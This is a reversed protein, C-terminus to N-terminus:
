AWPAPPRIVMSVVAPVIVESAAPVQPTPTKALEVVPSMWAVVPTILDVPRPTLRPVEVEPLMTSVM